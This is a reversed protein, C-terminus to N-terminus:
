KNAQEIVHLVKHEFIEILFLLVTQTQLPAHYVKVWRGDESNLTPLCLLNDECIEEDWCHVLHRLVRLEAAPIERLHARLLNIISPAVFLAQDPLKTAQQVVYDCIDLREGPSVQSLGSPIDEELSIRAISLFSYLAGNEIPEEELKVISFLRTNGQFIQFICHRCDKDGFEM